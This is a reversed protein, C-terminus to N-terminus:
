SYSVIVGVSTWPFIHMTSLDGWMHGLAMDWMWTFALYTMNFYHCSTTNHCTCIFLLELFDLKVNSIIIITLCGSSFLDLCSSSIHVKVFVDFTWYESVQHLLFLSLSCMFSQQSANDHHWHCMIYFRRWLSHKSGLM